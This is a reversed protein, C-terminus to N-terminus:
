AAREMEALWRPYAAISRQIFGDAIECLRRETINQAIRDVVSGPMLRLGLPTPLDAQLCLQYEILTEGNAPHFVSKSSYAGQTTASVAGATAKVPPDISLPQVYLTREAEDLRAQLDCFIRIHYIGLETTSYLLRFSDYRYVEVLLIHPLYTLVRGLDGYYVFATPLEAPFTFSREIVGAVKIM